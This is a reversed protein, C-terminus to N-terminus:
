QQEGDCVLSRDSDTSISRFETSAEDPVETFKTVTYGACDGNLICSTQTWKVNTGGNALVTNTVSFNFVTQIGDENVWAIGTTATAGQKTLAVINVPAEDDSDTSPCKATPPLVSCHRFGWCNTTFNVTAAAAPATANPPMSPGLIVVGLIIGIIGLLLSIRRRTM